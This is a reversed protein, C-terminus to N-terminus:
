VGADKDYAEREKMVKEWKELEAAAMNFDNIAKAKIRHLQTRSFSMACGVAKWGIFQLYRLELVTKEDETPLQSIKECIEDRFIERKRKATILKSEYRDREKDFLDAKNGGHPMGSMDPKGYLNRMSLYNELEVKAYTEARCYRKYQQLYFEKVAIENM